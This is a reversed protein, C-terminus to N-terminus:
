PIKKDIKEGLELIHRVNDTKDKKYKASLAAHVKNKLFILNYVFGDSQIKKFLISSEGLTKANVPSGYDNNKLFDVNAKYASNAGGRDSYKSIAQIFVDKKDKLLCTFCTESLGWNRLDESAAYNFSLEPDSTLTCVNEYLEEMDSGAEVRTLAIDIPRETM